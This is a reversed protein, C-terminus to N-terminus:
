QNISRNIGIELSWSEAMSGPYRATPGWYNVVNRAGRHFSMRKCLLVSQDFRLCFEPDFVRVDVGGAEREGDELIRINMELWVMWFVASVVCDWLIFAKHGNGLM